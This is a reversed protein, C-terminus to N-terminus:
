LSAGIQDARPKSARRMGGYTMDFTGRGGTMSRLKSLYGVMERLPTEARIMKRDGGVKATAGSSSSSMTYDPPLYMSDAYSRTWQTDNDGNVGSDDADVIESIVGHCRTSLDHSVEGMHDANVYVKTDMVPELITASATESRSYRTVAQRAVSSLAGVSASPDDSPFDWEMVRVVVSHLAMGYLPGGMQLATLCGRVVADRLDEASAEHKWRRQDLIDKLRPAMANEGLIVINNDGYIEAGEEEAFESTEAEGEFSDLAVTVSAGSEDSVTIEASPATFTEKYSVVVDSFRVNAKMDNVMRDRTIELHLEGMGSVVTQGMDADEYVHLSPDERVLQTLCQHMYRQDGATAPEIGSNFLPPPIEIPLLRLNAETDTFQKKNAVAVLTDGTVIDDDHGLVVGINGAKLQKVEEPMDGHMVMLKKVHLKAGSRTNVVTSNAQLKGSYVRFFTMVGKTAHTMVKFALAVALTPQGNIVLGQPTVKAPVEVSEAGATSQSAKRKSKGRTAKTTTIEPVPADLPSPLYSTVADMLPQVGINRFSSGCVVPTVTTALCGSRLASQLVATPVAMHDETELFSEIVAEDIEGLTEVMSERSAACMEYAEPYDESPESLDIVEVSQGTADSTDWILLKKHVVDVVGSFVRDDGPAFYPLSCVVAKTNLKTVIEKVTRSFGAGPRDMKNVYAVKPIGLEHAQRWVKETQAEVGAVADLITVAGDLVRLSRVVEFTFDAHGPTDIVNITHGNWPLSIAASQITIGRARESPLYDTVTDGEDVNGMRGTRGSYFLMRETTTTKGADIHAIIGINRIKAPAVEHLRSASQQQLWRPTTHLLRRWLM